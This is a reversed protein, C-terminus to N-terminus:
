ENLAQVYERLTIKCHKGYDLKDQHMIIWTSHYESEGGKAPLYYM